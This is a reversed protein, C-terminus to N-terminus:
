CKLVIISRTGAVNAMANPRSPAVLTTDSSNEAARTRSHAYQSPPNKLTVQPTDTSSDQQLEVTWDSIGPEGADHVGDRDVDQFVLGTLAAALLRRPELPEV